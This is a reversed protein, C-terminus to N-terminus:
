KISDLKNKIDIFVKFMWDESCDIVNMDTDKLIQFLMDSIHKKVGRSESKSYQYDLCGSIFCKVTMLLLKSNHENKHIADLLNKYEICTICYPVLNIINQKFSNKASIPKLSQLAFQKTDFNNEKILKYLYECMEDDCFTRKIYSIDLNSVNLKELFEVDKYMYEPMNKSRLKKWLNLLEPREKFKVFSKSKQFDSVFKNQMDRSLNFFEKTLNDSGQSFYASFAKGQLTKRLETNEVFSKWDAIGYGFEYSITHPSVGNYIFVANYGISMCDKVGM